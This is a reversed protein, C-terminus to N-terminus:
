NNPRKNANSLGVNLFRESKKALPKMGTKKTLEALESIVSEEEDDVEEIAGSM